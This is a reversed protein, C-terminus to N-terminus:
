REYGLNNVLAALRQQPYAKEIRAAASDVEEKLDGSVEVPDGRHWQELYADDNTLGAKMAARDIAQEFRKSLQRREARRAERVTVQAPVDRWYVVVLKAMVIVM